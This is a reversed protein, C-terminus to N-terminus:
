KKKFSFSLGGMDVSRRSLTLASSGARSEMVVWVRALNAHAVMNRGVIRFDFLRFSMGMSTGININRGGSSDPLNMALVGPPIYIQLRRAGPVPIALHMGVIGFISQRKNHTESRTWAADIHVMELFSTRKREEGKTRAATISRSIELAVHDTSQIEEILKCAETIPGAPVGEAACVGPLWAPMLPSPKRKKVDTRVRGEYKRSWERYKGVWKEAEQEQKTLDLEQGFVATPVFVLCLILTWMKM